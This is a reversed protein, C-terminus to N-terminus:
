FGLWESVLILSSRAVPIVVVVVSQFVSAEL